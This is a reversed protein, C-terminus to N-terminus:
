RLGGQGGSARLRARINGGTLAAVAPEGFGRRRMEPLIARQWAAMGYRDGGYRWQAHDALDLGVAVSDVHGDELMRELLPWAHRAPDYKSRMFTDYELLFGDEALARHLGRDPRKDTHCLIVDQTAMPLDLLCDVLGEVRAGRETHISMLVGAATAASAAAELMAATRADLRGPHAAKVAGARFALRGGSGDELGDRLEALLRERLAAPEADWPSASPDHYRPLHFGTSAIVAVGSDRSLAALRRADRGAGLPQCDIVMRGGERAFGRLEALIAAEDDLRPADAGVGDVPAVWLHAHADVIGEDPLSRPGLVTIADHPTPRIPETM